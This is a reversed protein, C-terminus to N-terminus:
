RARLVVPERRGRAVSPRVARQGNTAQPESDSDDDTPDNQEGADDEDEADELEVEMEASQWDIFRFLPLLAVTIIIGAMYLGLALSGMLSYYDCTSGALCRYAMWTGVSQALHDGFLVAPAYPVLAGILGALFLLYFLSIGLDVVPSLSEVVMGLGVYLFNRLTAKM